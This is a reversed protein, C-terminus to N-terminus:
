FDGLCIACTPLAFVMDSRVLASTAAARGWRVAALLLTLTPALRVRAAGAPLLFGV